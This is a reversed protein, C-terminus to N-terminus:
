AHDGTDAAQEIFALIDQESPQGAALLSQRRADAALYSMSAGLGEITITFHEHEHVSPPLMGVPKLVGNEYVVEIREGM